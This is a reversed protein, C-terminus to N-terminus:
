KVNRLVQCRDPRDIDLRVYDLDIGLNRCACLVSRKPCSAIVDGCDLCKFYIDAAKPPPWAARDVRDLIVECKRNM